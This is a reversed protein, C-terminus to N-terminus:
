KQKEELKAELEKIRKNQDIVYLTLEEIKQLLKIQFEGVDVGEKEMEKASAIEPLHKKAKIHKEVEELKPLGYDEEFVFDATPTATVKVIKAEIKANVVMNDSFSSKGRVDLKAQPANTGVGIDGNGAIRFRESISAGDNTYFRVSNNAISTRPSVILDGALGMSSDGWAIQGPIQSSVGSIRNSFLIGAGTNDGVHLLGLPSETGIGINGSNKVVLKPSQFDGKSVMWKDDNYNGFFWNDTGNNLKSQIGQIYGGDPRDRKLTLVPSYDQVTPKIMQVGGVGPSFAPLVSCVIWWQTGTSKYIDFQEQSTVVSSYATFNTTDFGQNFYNGKIACQAHWSPNIQNTANQELTNTGDWPIVMVSFDIGPNKAAIIAYGTARANQKQIDSVTQSNAYFGLFVSIIVIIKKM